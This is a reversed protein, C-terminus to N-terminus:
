MIVPDRAGAREGTPAGESIPSVILSARALAWATPTRMGGMRYRTHRRGPVGTPRTHSCVGEGPLWTGRLAMRRTM